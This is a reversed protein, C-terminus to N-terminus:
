SVFNMVSDVRFSRWAQKDLDWVSVTDTNYSRAAPEASDTSPPILERNRTCRMVRVEGNVKTFIVTCQGARLRQLMEDRTM